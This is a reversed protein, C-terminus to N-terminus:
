LVTAATEMAKITSPQLPTDIAEVRSVTAQLHRRALRVTEADEGTCLATLRELVLKWTYENAGPDICVDEVLKMATELCIRNATREAEGGGRAFNGHLLGAILTHYCVRNVKLGRKRMQNLLVLALRADPRARSLIGDSSNATKDFLRRFSAPLAGARQLQTFERSHHFLASIVCTYTVATPWPGQSEMKELVSLALDFDPSEEVELITRILTTLTVGTERVDLTQMMEYVRDVGDQIGARSFCDLITTYTIVDPELGLASITMLISGIEKVGSKRESARLIANMTGINPKPLRASESCMEKFLVAADDGRNNYHMGHLVANLSETTLEVEGKSAKEKLDELILMAESPLQARFYATMMTTYSYVDPKLRQLQDWTKSMSAWDRCRSYGDLLANWIRHTHPETTSKISNYQSWVQEAINTKKQAISSSLLIAWTMDNWDANLDHLATMTLWSGYEESRAEQATALFMFISDPDNAQFLLGIRRALSNGTQKLTIGKNDLGWALIAHRCYDMSRQAHEIDPFNRKMYNLAGIPSLASGNGSFGKTPKETSGAQNIKYPALHRALQILPVVSPSTQHACAIAAMSVISSLATRTPRPRLTSAGQDDKMQLLIRSTIEWVTDFHGANTLVELSTTVETWRGDQSLTQALTHLMDKSGQVPALFKILTAYDQTTLLNQKKEKCLEAWEKWVESPNGGQVSDYYQRLSRPSENREARSWEARSALSNPWRSKM